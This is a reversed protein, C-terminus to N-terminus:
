IEVNPGCCLSFTFGFALDDVVVMAVVSHFALM